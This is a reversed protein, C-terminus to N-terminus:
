KFQLEIRGETFEKIFLEALEPDFQKGSAEKLIGLAKEVPYPEKYVRRSTMADFSDAVCLIRAYLPIDEGAIRRPYGSGDYCEHHGIVAPIVYDLSPLHRIINVSNEVHKTMEAFETDTLRTQKNLIHEPVGIKGVDHLLAAENIIEISDSSLGYAHALRTAYYAVNKSHNFTYHDKADIAATLAYITPAYSSYVKQYDEPEDAKGTTADKAAAYMLVGNKGGRKVQYVAQEANQLLQKPTSAAFPYICIGISATMTKCSDLEDTINNIAAIQELIHNALNQVFLSNSEPLLVMFEKGSYRAVTGSEGVVRVLTSAILKLAADGATNGYLQNFLKFDDINVHILALSKGSCAAFQKKLEELFYKRNTLGTLDDTRADHDAKEYLRANKVAIAAVTKVSTLFSEEAFNFRKGKEKASLILVGLLIGKDTLPVFCGANLGSLLQKENEWLSRYGEISNIEHEMLCADTKELHRLLPNGATLVIDKRELPNSGRTLVFKEGSADPTLASVWSIGTGRIIVSILADLIDSVNLMSSVTRSFEEVLQARNQEERGFISDITVKMGATVAVTSLTYLISVILVSWKENLGFTKVLLTQIPNILYAFAIATAVASLMYCNRKSSFQTLKFMRKRYLMRVLCFANVIGGLIDLPIGSFAPIMILINGILIACCGLVIPTYSSRSPPDAKVRQWVTLLINAFALFAFGYLVLIGRTNFTYIFSVDGDPLTVAEPPPLLGSTLINILNVGLVAILIVNDQLDSKEGAYRHLFSVVACPVLCLGLLSADYWFKIGPWLQLRMFLSGGAWVACAYLVLKFSTIVKNGRAHAFTILLFVYCLLALSSIFTFSGSM